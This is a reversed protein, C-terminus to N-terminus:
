CECPLFYKGCTFCYCIPLTREHRKVFADDAGCCTCMAPRDDADSGSGCKQCVWAERFGQTFYVVDHGDACKCRKM